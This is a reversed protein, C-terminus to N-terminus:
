KIREYRVFTCLEHKEEEGVQKFEERYDPFFTDAICEKYIYTLELVDVYPLALKYIEGGGIIFAKEVRNAECFAFADEINHMVHVKEHTFVFDRQRTLILNLRDPLPKKPLSDWTKRGMIVAHGTTLQKFRKLDEPIHALLKNEYGLGLCPDIAAIIIKQM